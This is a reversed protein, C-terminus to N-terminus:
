CWHVSVLNEADTQQSTTLNCGDTGVWPKSAPSEAANSKALSLHSLVYLSRGCKFNCLWM